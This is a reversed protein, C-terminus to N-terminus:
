ANPSINRTGIGRLRGSRPILSSGDGSGVDSIKTASGSNTVPAIPAASAIFDPTQHLALPTIQPNLRTSKSSPMSSAHFNAQATIEGKSAPGFLDWSSVVASGVARKTPSAGFASVLEGREDDELSSCLSVRADGDDSYDDRDSSLESSDDGKGQLAASSENLTNTPYTAEATSSSKKSGGRKMKKREEEEVEEGWEFLSGGDLTKRTVATSLSQIRALIKAYGVLPASSGGGESPSHLPVLEGKGRKGKRAKSSTSSPDMVTESTDVVDDGGGQSVVGSEGLEVHRRGGSSICAATLYSCDCLHTPLLDAKEAAYCTAGSLALTAGLGGAWGLEEGMGCVGVTVMFADKGHSVVNLSLAGVCEVLLLEILVLVFALVGVGLINGAFLTASTPDSQSLESLAVIGTEPGWGGTLEWYAAPVLSIGSIPGILTLLLMINPREAIAKRSIYADSLVWRTGAALAAVFACIAGWIVTNRDGSLEATPSASAGHQPQSSTGWACLLVGGGLLTVAAILRPSAPALGACLSMFMTWFLSTSKAVTYLSVGALKLALNSLAVDLAQTLAMPVIFSMLVGLSLGQM